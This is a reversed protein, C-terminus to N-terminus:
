ANTLEGKPRVYVHCLGSSVTIASYAGNFPSLADIAGGTATRDDSMHTYGDIAVCVLTVSPQPVVNYIVMDSPVTYTLTSSVPIAGLNGGFSLSQPNPM